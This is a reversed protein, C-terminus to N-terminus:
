PIEKFKWSSKVQDIEFVDNLYFVSFYSWEFSVTQETGEYKLILQDDSLTYSDVRMILSPVFEGGRYIMIVQETTNQQMKETLTIM